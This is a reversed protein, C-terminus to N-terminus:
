YKGRFIHGQLLYMESATSIEIDTYVSVESQEPINVAHIRVTKDPTWSAARDRHFKASACKEAAPVTCSPCAKLVKVKLEGAAAPAPALLLVLLVAGAGAGQPGSRFERCIALMNM